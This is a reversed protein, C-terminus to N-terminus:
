FISSWRPYKDSSPVYWRIRKTSYYLITGFNTFNLSQSRGFFIALDAEKAVMASTLNYVWHKEETIGELTAGHVFTMNMKELALFLFIIEKSFDLQFIIRNLETKYDFINPFYSRVYFIKMPCVKLSKSFKGPFLDANKTFHGQASIVWSELLTIDTV